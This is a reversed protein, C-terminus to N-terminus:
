ITLDKTRRKAGSRMGRSGLKRGSQINPEPTFIDAVPKEASVTMYNSLIEIQVSFVLLILFPPPLYECGRCYERRCFLRFVSSRREKKYIWVFGIVTVGEGHLGETDLDQECM